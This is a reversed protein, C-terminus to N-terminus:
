IRIEVSPWQPGDAQWGTVLVPYVDIMDEGPPWYEKGTHMQAFDEWDLFVRHAYYVDKGAEFYLQIHSEGRERLSHAASVGVIDDVVLGEVRLLSRNKSFRPNAKSDGSARSSGDNLSYILDSASWDPVWSPLRLNTARKFPRPVNLINLGQESNIIEIALKTHTERTSLTYDLRFTLKINPTM